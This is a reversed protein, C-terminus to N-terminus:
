HTAAVHVHLAQQRQQLAAPTEVAAEAAGAEQLAIHGAKIQLLKVNFIFNVVAEAADVRLNINLRIM